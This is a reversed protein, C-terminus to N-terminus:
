ETVKIFKSCEKMKTHIDYWFDWGEANDSLGFAGMIGNKNDQEVWWEFFVSSSNNGNCNARFKNQIYVTQLNFWELRTM